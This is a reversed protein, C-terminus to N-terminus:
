YIMKNSKSRYNRTWRQRDTIVRHLKLLVQYLMCQVNLFMPILGQSPHLYTWQLADQQPNTNYIIWDYNSHTSHYSFIDKLLLSIPLPMGKTYMNVFRNLQSPHMKPSLIHLKAQIKLTSINGALDRRPNMNHLVVLVTYGTCRPYRDHLKSPLAHFIKAIGKHGGLNEMCEDIIIAIPGRSAAKAFANDPHTIDYNQDLTLEAYSMTIFRPKLTGSQPIITGEPGPACNGECAQAEWALLEQPPIMDVEPAVFFVTEPPPNILRNSLVNRLLQSKGCGTPGYIVGILPQISYNLSSCTQNSNLFPRTQSKARQIEKNLQVLEGLLRPGALSLLQDLSEYCKLPKLGESFPM